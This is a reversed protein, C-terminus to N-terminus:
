LNSGTCPKFENNIPRTQGNLLDHKAKPRSDNEFEIKFRFLTQFKPTIKKMRIPGTQGKLFNFQGDPKSDCISRQDCSQVQALNSDVERLTLKEDLNTRDKLFDYIKTITM